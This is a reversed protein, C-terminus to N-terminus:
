NAARRAVCAAVAESVERMLENRVQGSKRIVRDVEGNLRRHDDATLDLATVVLVPLNRWEDRGRLEVLFEFGDMEPMMLDLVIADPLGQALRELGVRGNDAQTVEWGERELAQRITERVVADDEILMVRGARAGCLARLTSALRKRDIPKVLYEAAGLAYGRQRDDVITVLIVPIDALAPDGKLAALVSWGDLEPMMVDLTIAAPHVDRALALAEIGSAATLVAFGERSLHRDMLDRVTPDDDVVLIQAGNALPPRASLPRAAIAPEAESVVDGTDTVVAPLRITFTSGAGPASEVTIDGGMMRCFRRSIALGLGTGGYKRTTSADAQIFDQFLRATQEPTMGIGTDAIGLVVWDREREAERAATITVAGRETFKVANSALNLLAQRIRTQDARMVGLGPACQVDLRNGNKEAMPALTAAVEEVLPAVAFTELQLEMKGAEIKSLDLIENILELLHRAARLIRELPEVDDPRGLDRADELLMESVGIIANMPTRLEHSMNALFQSKHESAAELERSKDEIEQFLRANHVALASQTAFTQILEVVSLSFEGAARRRVVLAGATHDGRLMPVALLARFGARRLLAKVAPSMEVDELNSVQVARRGSAAFGVMTDGAGLRAERLADILERDLGYNARPVFVGTADDRTYITGADANSLRVAHTVITSLVNQLDLTSNVAQSVQGLARLEEISQALERTRAEVKEELRAYSEEIKEAARNFEEGLAELEDGTRVEIRHALEGAGIRAAGAQLQRIPAVMHRALFLSALVALALGLLFFFASRIIPARLPALADAAPREVFVLWGLPAIEAHAALAQMADSGVSETTALMDGGGSRARVVQAAQALNRKQLVLSIDPHAILHGTADVVYAYGSDGIRIRSITDWIGRLSIEAAVVANGGRGAPVAVTLYPESENRFHVPGFFTNGARTGVFAADNVADRGSGAENLAFRSVALQERGAEDIYRVDSIAPVHRLLQFFGEERSELAAVPSEPVGASAIRLQREIDGVFHRIEQAAAAANDREARVLAARAERYTFYLEGASGLLLVGGTLAVIVVVYKRFLRKRHGTESM